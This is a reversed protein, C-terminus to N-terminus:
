YILVVLAMRLETCHAQTLSVQTFKIQMCAFLFVDAFLKLFTLTKVYSVRPM